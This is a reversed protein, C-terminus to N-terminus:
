PSRVARGKGKTLVMSQDVKLDAFEEESGDPWVVRIFDVRGVEGLGFHARPDNSCLYSQSPNILSLWRQDGSHVTVEAGYADRRLSPDYARVLLWHGRNPAVNRYVRPPGAVNTVLLDLAGDGNLDGVALGRGIAYSSCLPANAESIERFRGSGAGSFLQNRQAYFGWYPDLGPEALQKSRYIGGNVVAIDLLGDQNFDQLATGWGTGHWRPSGLGVAVTRDRYCGREEQRWLTNTELNLHTVFLDLLGRGTTDGLAVGMNAQARGM